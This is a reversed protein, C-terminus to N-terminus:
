NLCPEVTDSARRRSAHMVEPVRDLLLVSPAERAAAPAGQPMFSGGFVRQCGPGACTRSLACCPAAVIAEVRFRCRALQLRARESPM